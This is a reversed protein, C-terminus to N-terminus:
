TTTSSNREWKGDKFVLLGRHILRHCNPCSSMMNEFSYSGQPNKRHIDCPGEWGCIWCQNKLGRKKFMEKAKIRKRTKILIGYHIKKHKTCWKRRYVRGNIVKSIDGLCNCGEIICRRKDDRREM